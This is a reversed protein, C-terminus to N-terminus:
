FSYFIPMNIGLEMPFRIIQLTFFFIFLLPLFGLSFSSFGFIHYLASEIFNPCLVIKQPLILDLEFISECDQVHNFCFEFGQLEKQNKRWKGFSWFFSSKKPFYNRLKQM